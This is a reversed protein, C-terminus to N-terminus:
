ARVVARLYDLLDTPSVDTTTSIVTQTSCGTVAPVGRLRQDLWALARPGGLFELTAHETVQDRVYQVSTGRACWGSVTQRTDAEFVLTDNVGQYVFLPAKPRGGAHFSRFARNVEPIAMFAKLPRDLYNDMNTGAHLALNTMLCHRDGEAMLARGADNLHQRFARGLVANGRMLGPTVSPYFGAAPGGNLAEYTHAANTVPSGLAVGVLRIDSAYSPQLQAMWATAFGGASYGWAAIPTARGHLGSPAFSEVARVGDLAMYGMSPATISGDPGEWDPVSVVYGKAVAAAIMVIEAQNLLSGIPEGGGKRLTYSPACQPGSADEAIQYSILGRPATDAPRLVTTVTTAPHGYADTTRYLLQWSRARMPRTGFSAVSVARVRLIAGAKAHAWGLPPRYFPDDRPSPVAAAARIPAGIVLATALVLILRLIKHVGCDQPVNKNKDLFHNLGV